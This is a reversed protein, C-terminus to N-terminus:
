EEGSTGGTWEEICPLLKQEALMVHTRMAEQLAVVDRNVVADYIRLHEDHTRRGTHPVFRTYTIRYRHLADYTRELLEGLLRSEAMGILEMHFQHNSKVLERFAREGSPSEDNEIEDLLKAAWDLYRRLVQVHEPSASEIIRPALLQELANRLAYLEKAEPVSLASVFAGRNPILEVLSDAALRNLAERVATRSAGLWSVLESQVLQKGPPFQGYIIAQKIEEFVTDVM